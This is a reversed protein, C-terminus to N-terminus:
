VLAFQRKREWEVPQWSGDILQHVTTIGTAKLAQYAPAFGDLINTPYHCDSNVTVPIGLENLLPLFQIDPYSFGKVVLSKTNIEVIMEKEKILTLLDGVLNLYRPDRIFFAPCKSANLAIKDMHGVIQFGGKAVMARSAEFFRPVLAWVDGDFGTQLGHNFKDFSGDISMFSGDPLRDLYHVSGILYDLDDVPYFVDQVEFVGHIYDMELGLFLEIQGSYKEKLRRFEAKYEPLDDARMNWFTDFPLPAHSSFGYRKLGKAIAFRVFEEM